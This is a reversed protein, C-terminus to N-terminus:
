QSADYVDKKKLNKQTVLFDDNGKNRVFICM